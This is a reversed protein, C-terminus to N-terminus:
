ASGNRKKLFGYAYSGIIEMTVSKIGIRGEPGGGQGVGPAFSINEM